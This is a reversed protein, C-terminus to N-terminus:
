EAVEARKECDGGFHCESFPSICQPPTGWVSTCFREGECHDADVWVLAGWLEWCM